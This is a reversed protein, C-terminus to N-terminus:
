ELKQVLISAWVDRWPSQRGSLAQSLPRQLLAATTAALLLLCACLSSVVLAPGNRTGGHKKRGAIMDPTTDLNLNAERYAVAAQYLYRLLYPVCLLCVRVVRGVALCHESVALCRDAMCLTEHLLLAAPTAVVPLCVLSAAKEKQHTVLTIASLLQQRDLRVVQQRM